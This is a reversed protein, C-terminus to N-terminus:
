EIFVKLGRLGMDVVTEGIEPEFKGDANVETWEFSNNISISVNIVIDETENGTITLPQVFEGTVLCSGPPIPASPLPNPVTTQPAQGKLVNVGLTSEVEFAFYGQLKNANVTVNENKINYSKIYQNFGVFSALRGTLNLEGHTADNYIFDIDYNQYGLSSRYYNYTGPTIDSLPIRMLVEGNSVMKQKEFNMALSGGAETEAGRFILTNETPLTMVANILEISHVGLKHFVPSQAANGPEVAVPEGLNGLREQNPDFSYKVVLSPVENNKDDDKDCSLMLLAVCLFPLFFINKKM